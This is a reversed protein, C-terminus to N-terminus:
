AFSNVCVHQWNGLIGLTFGTGAPNDETIGNRKCIYGSKSLCMVIEDVSVSKFGMNGDGEFNPGDNAVNPLLQWHTGEPHYANIGCRVGLRGTSDVTWVGVKGASIRKFHVNSPIEVRQWSTGQRNDKTIGLRYLVAGNLGVAWVEGTNKCSISAVNIDCPIHEWSNGAPTTTTVNMRMLVDGGSSVAWVLIEDSDELSQLSVDHIRTQGVEKWPGRTTLRCKRYWRRRRATDTFQKKPHYTAPFDLAYQWGDRDCGNPIKFDVIWDSVFQWHMSFLKSFEKSRKHRGTEDSWTHRDTPLMATSFGSIPNYRQNEYVYYHMSDTMTNIGNSSSELGQYFMM